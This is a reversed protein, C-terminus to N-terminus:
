PVMQIYKSCRPVQGRDFFLEPSDRSNGQEINQVSFQSLSWCHSDCRDQSWHMRQIPILTQKHKEVSGIEILSFKGRIRLNKM